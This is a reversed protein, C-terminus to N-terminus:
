DTIWLRATMDLEGSSLGREFLVCATADRLVLFGDRGHGLYISHLSGNDSFGVRLATVSLGQLQRHVSALEGPTFSPPLNAFAEPKSFHFVHTPTALIFREAEDVGARDFALGRQRMVAGEFLNATVCAPHSTGDRDDVITVAVYRPSTSTDRVAAEFSVQSQLPM